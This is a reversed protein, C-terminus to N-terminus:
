LLENILESASKLANERSAPYAELKFTVHIPDKYEFVIRESAAETKSLRLYLNCEDDIRDQLTEKLDRRDYEDLNGFIKLAFERMDKQRTLRTKLEVIESRFVGGDAEPELVEEMIDADAPLICELTKRLASAGDKPCYASVTIHHVKM